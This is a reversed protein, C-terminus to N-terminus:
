KKQASKKVTIFVAALLLAGAATLVYVTVNSQDGTKVPKSIGESGGPKLPKSSGPTKRSCVNRFQLDAYKKGDEKEATVQPVLQGDKGNEIYVTIDYCSRDYQYSEKDKTTQLLQYHYIGARTYKLYVTKEAQRGNLSFSYSDGNREEPMPADTDLSRIEYDGTLNVEKESNKVEFIQKVTLPVEAAKLAARVEHAPFCLFGFLLVALVFRCKNKRMDCCESDEPHKADKSLRWPFLHWM